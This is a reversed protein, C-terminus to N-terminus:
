CLAPNPDRLLLRNCVELTYQDDEGSYGIFLEGMVSRFQSAWVQPPPRESTGEPLVWCLLSPNETLGLLGADVAVALSASWDQPLNTSLQSAVRNSPLKEGCNGQSTPLQLLLDPM